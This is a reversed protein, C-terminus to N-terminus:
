HTISKGIGPLLSVLKTLVIDCVVRKGCGTFYTTVLSASYAMEQIHNYKVINLLICGLCSRYLYLYYNNNVKLPEYDLINFSSVNLFIITSKGWFNQKAAREAKYARRLPIIGIYKSSM